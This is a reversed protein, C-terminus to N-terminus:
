IAGCFIPIKSNKNSYCGKPNIRSYKQIGKNHEVIEEGELCNDRTKINILIFGNKIHGEIFVM